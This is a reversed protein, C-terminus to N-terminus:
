QNVSLLLLETCLLIFLLSLMRYDQLTVLLQSIPDSPQQAGWSHGTSPIRWCQGLGVLDSPQHSMMQM